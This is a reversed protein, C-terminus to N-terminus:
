IWKERDIIIKEGEQQKGSNMIVLAREKPPSPTLENGPSKGRFQM